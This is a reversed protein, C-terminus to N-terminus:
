EGTSLQSNPETDFAVLLPGSLMRLHEPLAAIKSRSVERQDHEITQLCIIATPAM